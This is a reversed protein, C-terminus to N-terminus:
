HSLKDSSGELGMSIITKGERSRIGISPLFEELTNEVKEFHAPASHPGDKVVSMYLQENNIKVGILNLELMARGDFEQYTWHIENEERANKGLLAVAGQLLSSLAFNIQNEPYKMEAVFSMNHNSKVVVATSNLYNKHQDIVQQFSEELNILPIDSPGNSTVAEKRRKYFLFATLLLTSALLLYTLTNDSEKVIKPSHYFRQSEKLLQISKQHHWHTATPDSSKINEWQDLHREVKTAMNESHFHHITELKAHVNIILFLFVAIYSL